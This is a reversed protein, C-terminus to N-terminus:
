SFEALGCWEQDKQFGAEDSPLTLVQAQNRVDQRAAMGVTWISRSGLEQTRKSVGPLM